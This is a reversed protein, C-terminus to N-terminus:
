GGVQHPASGASAVMKVLIMIQKWQQKIYVIIFMM